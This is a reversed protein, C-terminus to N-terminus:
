KNLCELVERYLAIVQEFMQDWTFQKVNEIGKNIIGERNEKIKLIDFCETISGISLTNLLLPTKGIIEPISSANYAIVPCGAKQAELIPIGFGEYESPYLLAFAGNYLYNLEENSIHGMERYNTQGLERCLFHYEEKSLPAGVIILKLKNYAVARVALEFKKYKERSGIFLVYTELVFPLKILDKKEVPFYDDSVGNYIIRIKSAEVNPLFKLLDHKTNESICIIYDSHKIANYKQWVHLRRKWGKAYYEYTFDHVTTINVALPNSSYRYYSSHFIFPTDIFSLKLSLYRRLFLFYGHLICISDKNIQLINYFINQPSSSYEVYKVNMNERGIIRSILEKWVVSVGGARQLYFIINDIVIMSNIRLQLNLYLLGNM